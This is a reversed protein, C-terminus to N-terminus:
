EKAEKADLVREVVARAAEVLAREDYPSLEASETGSVPDRYPVAAAPEVRGGFFQVMAGGTVGIWVGASENVVRAHHPLAGARVCAQKAWGLGDIIQRAVDHADPGQAALAYEDM